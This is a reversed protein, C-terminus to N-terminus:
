YAAALAVQNVETSGPLGNGASPTLSPVLQHGSLFSHNTVQMGLRSILWQLKWFDCGQAQLMSPTVETVLAQVGSSTFLQVAGALARCEYGQVQM